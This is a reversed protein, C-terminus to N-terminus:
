KEVWGVLIYYLTDLGIYDALHLPGMPNGAGLKMSLDVDQISADGREVLLISQVINPVLLRNVIFGPTDGCKVPVKGIDQVWQYANEFVHPLTQSTNIVEVLPMLQVPNFFHVGVFHEQRNSMNALETISLSSTNSAFTCDPKCIKGMEQYLDRKLDLNEIVAEICFDASKLNNIDTTFTINNLIRDAEDAELKGKATLKAISNEIRTRGSDLYQQEEEFAIVASHKNSSAAVQCIGHGMLGLGIVGVTDFPSQNSSPQSSSFLRMWKSNLKLLKASSIIQRSSLIQNHISQIMM